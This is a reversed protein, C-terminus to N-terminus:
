KESKSESPGCSLHISHSGKSTEFFLQGYNADDNLCYVYTFAKIDDALQCSVKRSKLKGVTGLSAPATSTRESSIICKTGALMLEIGENPLEKSLSGGTADVTYDWSTAGAHAAFLAIIAAVLLRVSTSRTM